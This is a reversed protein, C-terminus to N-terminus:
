NLKVEKEAQKAIGQVQNGRGTHETEGEEKTQYRETERKEFMETGVGPDVHTDGRGGPDTM